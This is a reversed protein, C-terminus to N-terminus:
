APAGSLAAKLAEKRGQRWAQDLSSMKGGLVTTSAPELLVVGRAMTVNRLVLKTGIAMSPGIGAVGAVEIGFVTTGQADQLSLKYPGSSSTTTQQQEAGDSSSPEEGAAVRIVERGRTTEGREGAEIEEVQSWRSRGMDDIDVVQVPIPGAIRREQVGADLADSPFASTASAQLTQRFDSALIRFLATQKLAPLPAAAPRNASTFNALWAATPQLSKSNLHASIEQALSQAAAM